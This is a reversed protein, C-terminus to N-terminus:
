RRRPADDETAHLPKTPQDYARLIVAHTEDNADPVQLLRGVETKTRWAGSRVEFREGGAYRIRVEAARGSAPVVKIVRNYPTRVFALGVSPGRGLDVAGLNDVQATVYLRRGMYWRWLGFALVALFLIALGGLLPVTLANCQALGSCPRFADSPPSTDSEGSGNLASARCVYETGNTLGGIVVTAANVDTPPEISWTTGGDPSCQWRYGDVPTDDPASVALQAGADLPQVTPKTPPPPRGFPVVTAPGAAWPGIGSGRVAAVECAYDTGNVLGDVTTSTETSTGEASDVGDGGTAPHCRVEYDVVPDSEVEIPPAWTVEIKGDGPFLRISRVAGAPEPTPSASPPVSPEVTFTCSVDQLAVAVAGGAAEATEFVVTPWDLAGGECRQFDRTLRLGALGAELEARDDPDLGMGVPLLAFPSRDGFLRDRAPIVGAVPVGAAEHRGDTFFIIAPRASAAPLHAAAREMAAVYNTDDGIASTLAADVGARYSAAVQRLCAALRAVAPDNERLRLGTCDPVDAARTAFRVISVTADGAALTASTDEVRAAIGDLADAFNTRVAEDDLISGSFDLVLVIDSPDDVVAATLGAAAPHGPLALALLIAILTIRRVRLSGRPPQM